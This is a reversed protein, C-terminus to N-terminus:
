LKTQFNVLGPNVVNALGSDESPDIPKGMDELQRCRRAMKTGGVFGAGVLAAVGLLSGVVALAIMGAGMGDDDDPADDAPPARELIDVEGVVFNDEDLDLSHLVPM